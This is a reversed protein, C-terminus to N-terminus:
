LLRELLRKAFNYGFTLAFVAGVLQWGTMTITFPENMSNNSPNTQRFNGCMPPSAPSPACM